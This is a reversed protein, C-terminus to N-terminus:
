CSAELEALREHGGITVVSAGCVTTVLGQDRLELLARQAAAPDLKTRTAVQSATPATGHRGIHENTMASAREAPLDRLAVLVAVAAATLM